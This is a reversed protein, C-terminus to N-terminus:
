SIELEVLYGAQPELCKWVLSAAQRHTLNLKSKALYIVNRHTLQIKSCRVFHVLKARNGRLQMNTIPNPNVKIYTPM